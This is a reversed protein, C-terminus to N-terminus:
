LKQSAGLSTLYSFSKMIQRQKDVREVVLYEIMVLYGM